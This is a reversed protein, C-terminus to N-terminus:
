ALSEVHSNYDAESLLGDLETSDDMKIKYFWGAGMADSNVLAPNDTLSDNIHTIEGGVPSKVEGAAKVSEIVCVEDAVKVKKGVTPLEVFVVDGLQEQAYDTIGITAVDGEISVWEHEKTFHM